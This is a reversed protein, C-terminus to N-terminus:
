RDAHGENHLRSVEQVASADIKKLGSFAIKFGRITSIGRWASGDLSVAESWNSISNIPSNTIGYRWKLVAISRKLHTGLLKFVPDVIGYIANMKENMGEFSAWLGDKSRAIASTLDHFGESEDLELSTTCSAFVPGGRPLEATPTQKYISVHAISPRVLDYTILEDCMKDNLDDITCTVRFHMQFHYLSLPSANCEDNQCPDIQEL